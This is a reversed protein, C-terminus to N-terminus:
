ICSDEIHTALARNDFTVGQFAGKYGVLLEASVTESFDISTGTFSMDSGQFVIDFEADSFEEVTNDRRTM